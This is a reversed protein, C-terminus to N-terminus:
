GAAGGNRLRQLRNVTRILAASRTKLVRVYWGPTDGFRGHRFAERCTDSRLIRRMEAARERQSLPCDSANLNSLAQQVRWNLFSCYPTRIADTDVQAHAFVQERLRRSTEVTDWLGPVYRRTLSGAHDKEYIYLDERVVRFGHEAHLLYRLIFQEDECYALSEDFRLRNEELVSRRFSKNCPTLMLGREQLQWVASLPMVGGAIGGWDTPVERAPTLSPYVLKVGCLVMDAPEATGANCLRGIWDPAVADDADCFLVYQGSAADLGRNRAASVGRNETHIVRIRADRAAWTDCLAGTGDTSGDDVVILEFNGETQALLSDLCRSLYPAANYAPLIVSATLSGDARPYGNHM